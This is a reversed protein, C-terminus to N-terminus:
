HSLIVLGHVGCEQFQILVLRLITSISYLKFHEANLANIADFIVKVEVMIGLLNVYLHFLKIEM